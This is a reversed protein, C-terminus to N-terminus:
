KSRCSGGPIFVNRWNATVSTNSLFTRHYGDRGALSDHKELIVEIDNLITAGTTTFGSISEFLANTINPIAGYIIFPLSGFISALIWGLTVILYGDKKTLEENQGIKNTMWLILGILSTGLGSILLAPIDDSGYYISFPIGTLMFLGTLLLLFGIIKFVVRFNM